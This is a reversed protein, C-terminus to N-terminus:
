GVDVYAAQLAELQLEEERLPCKMTQKDTALVEVAATLYKSCKHMDGCTAHLRAIENMFM